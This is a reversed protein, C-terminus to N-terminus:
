GGEDRHLVGDSGESGNRGGDDRGLTVATGIIWGREGELGQVHGVALSADLLVEIEQFLHTEVAGQMSVSPHPSRIASSHEFLTLGDRATAGDRDVQAATNQVISPSARAVDSGVVLELEIGRRLGAVLLGVTERDAGDAAISLVLSQCQVALLDEVVAERTREVVDIRAGLAVLAILDINM